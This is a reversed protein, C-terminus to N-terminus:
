RKKEKRRETRNTRRRLFLTRFWNPSATLLQKHLTNDAGPQEGERETESGRIVLDVWFHCLATGLQWVWILFPDGTEMRKDVLTPKLNGRKLPQTSYLNCYQTMSASFVMRDLNQYTIMTLPLILVNMDSASSKEVHAIDPHLCSCPNPPIQTHAQEKAHHARSSPHTTKLVTPSGAQWVCGQDRWKCVLSITKSM